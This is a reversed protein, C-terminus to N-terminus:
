LFREGVVVWGNLGGVLEFWEGLRGVLGGAWEVWWGM